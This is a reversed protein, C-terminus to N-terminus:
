KIKDISELEKLYSEREPPLASINRVPAKKPSPPANNIHVPMSESVVVTNEKPYVVPKPTNDKIQKQLEVNNRGLNYVRGVLYVNLSVSLCGLTIVILKIIREMAGIKGKKSASNDKGIFLEKLFPFLFTIIKITTIVASM